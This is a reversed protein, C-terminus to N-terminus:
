FIERLLLLGGLALYVYAIWRRLSWRKAAKRILSTGERVYHEAMDTLEAIIDIKHEQEIVMEKLAESLMAIDKVIQHTKQVKLYRDMVQRSELEMQQADDSDLPVFSSPAIQEDGSITPVATNDHRSALSRNMLTKKIQKEQSSQEQKSSETHLIPKLRFALSSKQDIYTRVSTITQFLKTTESLAHLLYTIMSQRAKIVEALEEIEASRQAKSKFISFLIGAKQQDVFGTIEEELSKITVTTERLFARFHLALADRKEESMPEFEAVPFSYISTYSPSYSLLNNHETKIRDAIKICDQLFLDDADATSFPVPPQIDPDAACLTHFQDTLDM